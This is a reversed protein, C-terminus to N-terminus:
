NTAYFNYLNFKYSYDKKDYANYFELFEWTTFGM